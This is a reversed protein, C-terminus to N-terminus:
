EGENGNGEDDSVGLEDEIIRAVASALEDRTLVDDGASFTLKQEDRRILTTAREGLHNVLLDDDPVEPFCRKPLSCGALDVMTLGPCDKVLQRIAQSSMGRNDCLDLHQLDPLYTAMAVLTDENIDAGGNLQIKKLRPHTKFFPILADNTVRTSSDSTTKGMYFDTLEPFPPEENADRPLFHRLFSNTIGDSPGGDLTTFIRLHTLHKLNRLHLATEEMTAWRCNSIHLRELFPIEKLASLALPTLNYCSDITLDRVRPCYRALADLGGKRLSYVDSLYVRELSPCHRFVWASTATDIYMNLLSLEQLMTTQDLLLFVHHLLDYGNFTLRRVHQGLTAAHHYGDFHQRALHLSKVLTETFNPFAGEAASYKSPSHWLLPNAISYFLSSVLTCQYMDHQTDVNGLIKSAVEFPLSDM